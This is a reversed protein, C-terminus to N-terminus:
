PRVFMRAASSAFAIGTLVAAAIAPAAPPLGLALM